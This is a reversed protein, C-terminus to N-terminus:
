RLLKTYCVNYSTIRYVLQRHNELDLVLLDARKHEEISGITRARGLSAAAHLTAASLAEAATALGSAAGASSRTARTSCPVNWAIKLTGSRIVTTLM